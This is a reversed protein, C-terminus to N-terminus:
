NTLLYSNDQFVIWGSKDLNQVEVVNDSVKYELNFFNDLDSMYNLVNQCAWKKELVCITFVIDHKVMQLNINNNFSSKFKEFLSKLTGSDINKFVHFWNGTINEKVLKKIDKVIHAPSPNHSKFEINAIKEFKSDIYRWLTLDTCASRQNESNEKNNYNTNNESFNYTNETPTEVSYFYNTNNLITCMLFRAEQESVRINGDRKVPFIIRPSMSQITFNEQNKESAVHWLDYCLRRNLELINMVIQQNNVKFM